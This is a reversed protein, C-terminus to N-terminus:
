LRPLGGEDTIRSSTVAGTGPDVRVVVYSNADDRTPAGTVVFVWEDRGFWLMAKARGPRRSQLWSAVNSDTAAARYAAASTAARQEDDVLAVTASARAVLNQIGATAASGYPFQGSLFLTGGSALDGPPLRVKWAVRGNLTQGAALQAGLSYTLCNGTDPEDILEERVMGAVSRLGNGAVMGAYNEPDGDWDTGVQSPVDGNPRDGVTVYAPGASCFNGEYSAPGPGRNTVAVDVVLTDGPRVSTVEPALTVVVDAPGTAATTSTAGPSTPTTVTPPAPVVTTTTSEPAPVTELVTPLITTGPETGPTTGSSTIPSSRGTSAPLAPASTAPRAAVVEAENGSRARGLGFAASGLLVVVVVAAAALARDRRRRRGSEHVVNALGVEADVPPRLRRLRARLGEDGPADRATGEDM